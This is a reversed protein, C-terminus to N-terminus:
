EIRSIKIGICQHFNDLVGVELAQDKGGLVVISEAKPWTFIGFMRNFVRWILIAFAIDHAFNGLRATLMAHLKTDIERWPIAVM